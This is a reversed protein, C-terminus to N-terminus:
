ALKELLAVPFNGFVEALRLGPRQENSSVSIIEKTFENRYRMGEDLSPFVIITDEWVPAGFPASRDKLIRSILRPVAVIVSEGDRRREFACVNGARSGFVGAPIYEGSAFLSKRSKRFNLAKFLLYLMIRGDDKASTLERCMGARDSKTEQERIQRLMRIGPEYDVPRRNDPDVLSYEWLETGQYIDPIGPAAIKLLTQALSNFMGFHSIMRQFPLFDKLFLNGEGPRLAADIFNMLFEEYVRNQNIWSTNVKAERSVKLMYDKIRSILEEYAGGEPTEVPWVGILTQYLLYEDNRDPMKGNEASSKNKRNMFAWSRVKAGWERPMESLVNIRARVHENRKVDHTSTTIMAHPWNKIREINQGHFTELSTGFRDPMGGVENLSVLRNYVFLATDEVGKAMVPGTLQQFRMAFDLWKERERDSIGEPARLLLVDKLFDFISESIAPNRRKARAVAFEIYQVDTDHVRWGNIYTRYVPFSAIVDVIASRLSYLTFDRTHRNMESIHNLYRSLTNVESAMAVQMVLKKKEYVIDQFNMRARIFKEYLRDFARANDGEVFIGNVSNLFVYGTTSFIPWDDPMRESKTLIKEGVIYFPKYSPDNAIAKGYEAALAAERDRLEEPAGVGRGGDSGGLARNIFCGRQLEHFYEVPNYLGDPHDVRLGTVSGERILRFILRHTSAFVDPHEIRIAALGNIDFFRRYNIEETAVRWHSLRYVQRGMLCDLLDFSRPDPPCGNFLEINRAIHAGVEASEGSLKCLRRKIVEKERNREEITAADTETYSPLHKIATMISLLEAIDSDQEGLRDILNQLGEEMVMIYTKPLLPFKHNFYRVFFAGEDFVLNLQKKELAAGYQDGLIPLLVKDRLENKVPSWDIDFYKAYPSTQGNELVDMWLKNEPSEICMHNPVIDIVQGMGFKKLESVMGAYDLATGIEPNLVSHDVIDYGHLSGPVAKFFPSSYLDTIGLDNLYGIIGTAKRFPFAKNFQVRYTSCPIGPQPLEMM